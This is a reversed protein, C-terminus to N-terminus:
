GAQWTFVAGLVGGAPDRLREYLEGARTPPVVDTILEGVSLRGAALHDLVEKKDRPENDRPIIVLAERQFVREYPLTLGGPYSGQVVYRPGVVDDRGWPTMRMLEVAGAVVGAAGTVDIVVDFGDPFREQFTRELPQGSMSADIGGRRAAEVRPVSLDCAVVTAGVTRALRVSLQGLVGLGVVAVTDGPGIAAKRIGHWAIAALKCLAAHRPDVGEPVAIWDGAPGVAHRVHGGWQRRYPGPHATGGGFVVAGERHVADPGARVVRGVCAYGPVFPYDANPGTEGMTRLETGPSVGTYWSEVLVEGAGPEPVGLPKLSVTDPATIVLAQSEMM